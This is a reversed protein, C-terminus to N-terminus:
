PLPLSFAAAAGGRIPVAQIKLDGPFDWLHTAVYAEMASLLHNFGLLILWDQQEEKKAKVSGSGTAELYRLEHTAKLAMGLTVGEWAIFLAGTLKRDLKAQGWGPVLLSRWFAGMPSVPGRAYSISDRPQPATPTALTDAVPPLSDQAEAMSPRVGPLLTVAALM